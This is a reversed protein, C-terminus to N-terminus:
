QAPIFPQHASFIVQGFNKVEMAPKGHYTTITGLVTLKKGVIKRELSQPSGSLVVTLLQDPYAAGLYALTVGGLNKVAYVRGMIEVGDKGINNSVETIPLSHYTRVILDSANDKDYKKNLPQQAFVSNTLGLVILSLITFVKKM